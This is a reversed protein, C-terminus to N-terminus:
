AEQPDVFMRHHQGVIENLSYGIAQLFNDNATQIIGESDFEIVALANHIADFQKRLDSGNSNGNRFIKFLQFGTSTSESQPPSIAM